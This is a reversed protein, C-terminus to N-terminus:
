GLLLIDALMLIRPVVPTEWLIKASVGETGGEERRM